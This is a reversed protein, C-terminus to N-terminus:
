WRDITEDAWKTMNAESHRRDTFVLHVNDATDIDKYVTYVSVLVIYHQLSLKLLMQDAANSLYCALTVLVLTFHCQVHKQSRTVTLGVVQVENYLIDITDINYHLLLHLSNSNQRYLKVYIFHM